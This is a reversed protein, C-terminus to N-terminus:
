EKIMGGFNRERNGQGRGREEQLERIKKNGRDQVSTM